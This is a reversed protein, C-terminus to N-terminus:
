KHKDDKCDNKNDTIYPIEINWNFQQVIFRGFLFGLVDFIIDYWNGALWQESYQTNSNNQSKPRIMDFGSFYLGAAYELGEWLIGITIILKGCDPFLMGLIMFLIFHSIPWGSCCKEGFAPFNFLKINMFDNNKYDLGYNVFLYIVHIFLILLVIIFIKYVGGCNRCDPLTCKGGSLKDNPNCVM